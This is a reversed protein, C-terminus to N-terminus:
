YHHRGQHHRNVTRAQSSDAPEVMMAVSGLAADVALTGNDMFRAGRTSFEGITPTVNRVSAYAQVQIYARLAACVSM